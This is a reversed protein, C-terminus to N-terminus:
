FRVTFKVFPTDQSENYSLLAARVSVRSFESTRAEANRNRAKTVFFAEFASFLRNAMSVFIMRTARDYKRNADDRMTEYTDRNVSNPATSSGTVAVWPDYVRVGASDLWADDWGWSFQDYKGIMEYYQQVPDDPLHHTVEPADVDEDDTVGYIQSLYDTYKDKSWHDHAFQEYIATAEDGDQHWKGYLGWAAIEVGLFLWPKTRSGYYFQGLGPLALSMLFAKGPSKRKYVSNVSDGGLIDTTLMGSRLQSTVSQEFQVQQLQKELPSPKIVINANTTVVCAVVLVVALLAGRNLIRLLHRM